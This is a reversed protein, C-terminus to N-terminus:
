GGLRLLDKLKGRQGVKLVVPAHMTIGILRKQPFRIQLIGNDTDDVRSRYGGDLLVIHLLLQVVVIAKHALSRTAVLNHEDHRHQEQQEETHYNPLPKALLIHKDARIQIVDELEPM